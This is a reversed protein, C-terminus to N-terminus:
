SRLSIPSTSLIKRRNLETDKPGTVVVVRVVNAIDVVISRRVVVVVVVAVPERRILSSQEVVISYYVIPLDAKEDLSFKVM